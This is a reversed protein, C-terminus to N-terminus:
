CTTVPASCPATGNRRWRRGTCTTPPPPAKRSATTGAGHQHVIVGRLTKVGESIWLTYTVGVQLETEATSPPYEVTAYQGAGHTTGALGLMGFVSALAAAVLRARRGLNRSELHMNMEGHITVRNEFGGSRSRVCVLSRTARRPCRDARFRLGRVLALELLEFEVLFAQRIPLLQPWPAV